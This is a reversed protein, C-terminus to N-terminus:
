EEVGDLIDWAEQTISREYDKETAILDKEYIVNMRKQEPKKGAEFDELQTKHFSTNRRNVLIVAECVPCYATYEDQHEEKYKRWLEILEQLAQAGTKNESRKMEQERTIGLSSQIRRIQEIATAKQRHQEVNALVESDIRKISLELTIMNSIQMWDALEPNYKEQFDNIRSCAFNYEELTRCIIYDGGPIQAYLVPAPPPAQGTNANSNKPNGM